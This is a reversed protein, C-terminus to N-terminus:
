YFLLQIKLCYRLSHDTVDYEFYDDSYLKSFFSASAEKLCRMLFYEFQKKQTIKKSLANIILTLIELKRMLNNINQNLKDFQRQSANKKSQAKFIFFKTKVSYSENM